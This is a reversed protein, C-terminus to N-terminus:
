VAPANASAPVARIRHPELRTELHDVIADAAPERCPAFSPWDNVDILIPQRDSGIVLDGGFIDLDLAAATDAALRRAMAEDHGDARIGDATQCHFFSSGRVAYFKLERGPAHAQIAAVAIGRRDFDDLTRDFADGTEVWRVDDPVSAHLDGRKVWRGGDGLVTHAGPRATRRTPIFTTAPVPLGHRRLRPILSERYTSLSAASRNVVTAGSAEWAGITRLGDSSQCMSFILSAAHRHRDADDLAALRVVHGGARLRGAVLELIIADNELHRGPSCMPERYIGLCATM